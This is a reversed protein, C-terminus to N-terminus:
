FFLFYSVESGLNLYPIGQFTRYTPIKPNSNRKIVVHSILVHPEAYGFASFMSKASIRLFILFLFIRLRM